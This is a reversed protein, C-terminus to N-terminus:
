CDALAQKLFIPQKELFGVFPQGSQGIGSGERVLTCSFFNLYVHVWTCAKINVMLPCTSLIILELCLM